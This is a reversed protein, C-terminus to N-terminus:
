ERDGYIIGPTAGEFYINSGAEVNNCNEIAGKIRCYTVYAIPAAYSFATFTM